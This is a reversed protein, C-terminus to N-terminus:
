WQFIDKKITKSEWLLYYQSPSFILTLIKICKCIKLIHMMSRQGNCGLHSFYLKMGGTWKNSQESHLYLRSRSDSNPSPSCNSWPLDEDQREVLLLLSSRTRLPRLLRTRPGIRDSASNSVVPWVWYTIIQTMDYFLYGKWWLFHCLWMSLCSKRVIILDSLINWTIVKGMTLTEKTVHRTTKTPIRFDFLFNLVALSMKPCSM